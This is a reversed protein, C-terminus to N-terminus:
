AVVPMYSRHFKVALTDADSEPNGAGDLPVHYNLDEEVMWRYDTVPTETGDLAVGIVNLGPLDAATAAPVMALLGFCLFGLLLKASAGPAIRLSSNDKTKM